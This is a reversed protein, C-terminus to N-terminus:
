RKYNYKYKELVSKKGGSMIYSESLRGSTDYNYYTTFGREDTISTVGVLPTYTYTTVLASPLKDRITNLIRMDNETPVSKNSLAAIFNFSLITALRAFTINRIEAVPYTGNYSWLYVTTLGKSAVQMPKGYSNYWSYKCEQTFSNEYTSLPLGYSSAIRQETEPLIKDSNNIYSTKRGDIVKDNLLLLTEVPVGIMYKNAMTGLVGIDTSDPYIYKKTYTGSADNISETEKMFNKNYTYINSNVFDGNSEKFTTTVKSLIPWEIEYVYDYVYDEEAEFVFGGVDRIKKSDYYYKTTKKDQITETELGNFVSIRPPIHSFLGGYNHEKDNIFKHITTTSGNKEKVTSYGFINGSKLTTMPLFSDSQRILYRTEFHFPGNGDDSIDRFLVLTKLRGFTPEALLKGDEYEYSKKEAGNIAKVRLGGGTIISDSTIIETKNYKYFFAYWTDKAYAEAEIIFDGKSLCITKTPFTYSCSTKMESPTPYYFLLQKSGDSKLKSIKFTANDDHDYRVDKDEICGENEAFGSIIIDTEKILFFKKSMTKPYQSYTDYNYENFVNMGEEVKHTVVSTTPTVKYQNAEYVFTTKGKTPSTVSELTGILIKNFNSSKDAGEYAVNDYLVPCYYDPGQNIGNSYGWYDTNRSNKAPFNGEYYNFKYSSNETLADSLGTLKLRKFVHPYAGTYSNNFYDYDFNMKKVILNTNNYVQISNLKKPSTSELIGKEDERQSCEFIIYGTNWSIKSLRWSEVLTKSCSYRVEGETPGALVAGPLSIIHYKNASEQVPAQYSEQEYEFTVHQGNVMSIDTLMWSSTYEFPSSYIMNLTYEYEDFKTADPRNQHLYGPRNYSSTKEYKKFTYRTGDPSTIVFYKKKPYDDFFDIKVNEGKDFTVPGRSKDIIFKGSATPISYFFIDPESDKRLTPLNYDYAGTIYGSDRPFYVEPATVYGERLDGGPPTYEHFDDGCRISRSILGGVNLSWGLGVWSAEQSVRIGSAHYSLTIPIKLIDTDIEYIPISIDPIGTYLSVPYDLQHVLSAVNPAKPTYQPVQWDFEDTFSSSAVKMIDKKTVTSDVNNFVSDKTASVGYPSMIALILIFLHIIKTRM